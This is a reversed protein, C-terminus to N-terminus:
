SQKGYLFKIKKIEKPKSLIKKKRNNQIDHNKPFRVVQQTFGGILQEKETEDWDQFLTYVDLSQPTIQIALFVSYWLAKEAVRGTLM